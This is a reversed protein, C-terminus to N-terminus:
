LVEIMNFMDHLSLRLHLFNEYCLTVTVSKQVFNDCRYGCLTLVFLTTVLDPGFIREFLPLKKSFRFRGFRFLQYLKTINIELSPSHQHGFFNSCTMLANKEFLRWWCWHLWDQSKNFDPIWPGFGIQGPGLPETRTRDPGLFNLFDRVLEFSWSRSFKLSEPGDRVPGPGPGLFLKLIESRVLVLLIQFDRVSDLPGHIGSHIM